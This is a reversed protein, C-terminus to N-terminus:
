SELILGWEAAITPMTRRREKNEKRALAVKNGSPTTAEPGATFQLVDDVGLKVTEITSKAKWGFLMTTTIPTFPM